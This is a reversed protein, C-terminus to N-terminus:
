LVSELKNTQIVCIMSYMSTCITQVTFIFSSTQASLVTVGAIDIVVVAQSLITSVSQLVKGEWLTTKGFPSLFERAFLMTLPFLAAFTESRYIQTSNWPIDGCVRSNKNVAAAQHKSKDTCGM